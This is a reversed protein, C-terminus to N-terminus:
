GLLWPNEPRGLAALRKLHLGLFSARTSCSACGVMSFQVIENLKRVVRNTFQASAPYGKEDFYDAVALQVWLSSVIGIAFIMRWTYTTFEQFFYNLFQRSFFHELSFSAFEGRMMQCLFLFIAAFLVAVIPGWMGWLFHKIIRWAVLVEPRRFLAKAREIMKRIRRSRM